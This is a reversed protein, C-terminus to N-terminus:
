SDEEVLDKVDSNSRKLKRCPCKRCQWQIVFLILPLICVGCVGALVYGVISLTKNHGEIKKYACDKYDGIYKMYGQVNSKVAFPDVVRCTSNGFHVQKNERDFVIYFGEMVIAGIVSGSDLSSIGMKFCDNEPSDDNEEGVPRMYQMPSIVLKFTATANVPLVLSVTPFVNYPVQGAKWCLVEDGSWFGDTPLTSVDRNAQLEQKMYQVLKNFVRYPLRLNTTGTDVITKGFNYEKCDMDLSSGAVEIDVIIVEYYWEKNVPTSFLEGTYLEPSSGGFILSGGVTNNPNPSFYGLGCLQVSFVNRAMRNKVMTDFLPEVSSDPRAIDAYGLGLIGQWDSNNIFFQEAKNICAINARVTPGLLTSIKIVDEGLEGSWSGITYPVNVSKGVNQYTSSKEPQFYTHLETQPKCAVALNSSGTDILVNLKQSPTGIEVQVYYGEGPRGLLNGIQKGPELIVEENVDATNHTIRRPRSVHYLNGLVSTLIVNTVLVVTLIQRQLNCKESQM